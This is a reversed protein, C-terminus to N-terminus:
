WTTGRSWIQFEKFEEFVEFEYKM